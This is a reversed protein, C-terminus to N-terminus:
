PLFAPDDWPLPEAGTVVGAPEPVGELEAEEAEVAMAAAIAADIDDPDATEADADEPLTETSPQTAQPRGFTGLLKDILVSAHRKSVGARLAAHTNRRDGPSVSEGELLTLLKAVQARSAPAKGTRESKAASSAAYANLLDDRTQTSGNM